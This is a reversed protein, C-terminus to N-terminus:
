EGNLVEGLKKLRDHLATCLTDLKENEHCVLLLNARSEMLEKVLEAQRKRGDAVIKESEAERVRASELNKNLLRNAEKVLQFRSWLDDIWLAAPITIIALAIFLLLDIM